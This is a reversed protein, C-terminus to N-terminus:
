TQMPETQMPETDMQQRLANVRNLAFTAIDGNYWDLDQPLTRMIEDEYRKIRCQKVKKQYGEFKRVVSERELTTNDLTLENIRKWERQKINWPGPALGKVVLCSRIMREPNVNAGSPLVPFVDGENYMPAGRDEGARQTAM